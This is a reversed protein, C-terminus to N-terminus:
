MIEGNHVVGFMGTMGEHHHFGYQEYFTEKGQAAFLGIFAKEPAHVKLYNTIETLILKGIGRNQHDPHVAVDQVYFYIQGDGIVRGMGIIDDKHQIVVGFLSRSLSEEAVEYNM